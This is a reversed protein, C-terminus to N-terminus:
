FMRPVSQRINFTPLPVAMLTSTKPAPSLWSQSGSFEHNKRRDADANLNGQGKQLSLPFEKSLVRVREASLEGRGAPFRRVQESRVVLVCLEFGLIRLPSEVLLALNTALPRTAETLGAYHNLIQSMDYEANGIQTASADRWHKCRVSALRWHWGLRGVVATRAFPHEVPLDSCRTPASFRARFPILGEDGTLFGDLFTATSM